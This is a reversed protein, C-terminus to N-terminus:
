SLFDASAAPSPTLTFNSFDCFIGLIKEKRDISKGIEIFIGNQFGPISESVKEFLGKVALYFNTKYVFIVRYKGTVQLCDYFLCIYRGFM